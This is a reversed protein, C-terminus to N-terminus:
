SQSQNLTNGSQTHLNTFLWLVVVTLALSYWTLMYEVHKEARADPRESVSKLSTGSDRALMVYPLVDLGTISRYREVTLNQWVRNEVTQTSLEIFRPSPVSLMGIAKIRGAPIDVIPPEPYGAARAIWGRNVLLLTNSDAIKLPTVVYYGAQGAEVKNDIFIQGEPYWHGEAVAKRYRLEPDRTSASLVIAPQSSRQDFDAQLIRKEAARGQQWYGLYVTLAVAM